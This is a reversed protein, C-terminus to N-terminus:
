APNAPALAADQHQALTVTADLRAALAILATALAARVRRGTNNREATRPVQRMARQEHQRHTAEGGALYMWEDM